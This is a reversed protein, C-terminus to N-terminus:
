EVACIQGLIASVVNWFIPVPSLCLWLVGLKNECNRLGDDMSFPKFPGKLYEPSQDNLTKFM